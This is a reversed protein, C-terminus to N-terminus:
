RSGSKCAFRAIGCWRLRGQRRGPRVALGCPRSEDGSGTESLPMAKNPETVNEDTSWFLSLTMYNLRQAKAGARGARMAHRGNSLACLGAHASLRRQAPRRGTYARCRVSGPSHVLIIRAHVCGIMGGHAMAGRRGTLLDLVQQGRLRGRAAVSGDQMESGVDGCPNLRLDRADIRRLLHMRYSM